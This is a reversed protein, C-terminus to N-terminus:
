PARNFRAVANSLFSAVYVNKGDPSLAV